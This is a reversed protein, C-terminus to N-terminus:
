QPMRASEYELVLSKKLNPRYTPDGHLSDESDGGSSDSSFLTNMDFSSDSGAEALGAGARGGTARLCSAISMRRLSVFPQLGNCDSQSAAASREPADSVHFRSVLPTRGTTFAGQKKVPREDSSKRTAAQPNRATQRAGRSRLSLRSLAQRSPPRRGAPPAADPPSPAADPPSESPNFTSEANGSSRSRPASGSRAQKEAPPTFGGSSSRHLKWRSAVDVLRVVPSLRRDDGPNGSGGAEAAAHLSGSAQSPPQGPPLPVLDSPTLDQSSSTSSSSPFLLPSSSMNTHLLLEESCEDPCEWLISKVWRQHKSCFQPCPAAKQARRSSRQGAHEEQKDGSEEREGRVAEEPQQHDEFDSDDSGLLLPSTTPRPEPASEGEGPKLLATLFPNFLPSIEAAKKDSQPSQPIRAPRCTAADCHLLKRLTAAITTSDSAIVELLLKEEETAPSHKHLIKDIYTDGPLAAELEQLYDLLRDEVKQAYRDGFQQEMQNKMYDKLRAKDIALSQALSKFDVHNKRMLFMEHQSCQDQYQPLKNPFFEGIKSVTEVMGKEEKLMWMIVMTKLGFMIKMHKIAPVLTPLLRFTSELFDIVREFSTIDRTKVIAYIQASSVRLRWSDELSLPQSDVDPWSSLDVVEQIDMMKHAWIHEIIWVPLKTPSRLEGGDM